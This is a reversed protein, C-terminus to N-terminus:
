RWSRGLLADVKAPDVLEGREAEALGLEIADRTADDEPPTRTWAVALEALASAQEATLAPLTSQLKAIAQTRTM